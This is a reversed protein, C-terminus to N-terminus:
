QAVGKEAKIIMWQDVQAINDISRIQYDNGNFVIQMKETIGVVPKLQFTLKQSAAIRGADLAEMGNDIFIFAEVSAYLTWTTTTGGQGDAVTVLSNIVITKKFESFTDSLFKAGLTGFRAASVPM